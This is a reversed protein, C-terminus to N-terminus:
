KKEWNNEMEEYFEKSVNSRKNSRSKGKKKRANINNVLSNIVGLKNKKVAGKKKHIQKKKTPM